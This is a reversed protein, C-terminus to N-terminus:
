LLRHVQIILFFPLNPNQLKFKNLTQKFVDVSPGAFRASSVNIGKEFGALLRLHRPGLDTRGKWRNFIGKFLGKEFDIKLKQTWLM